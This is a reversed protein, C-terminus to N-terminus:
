FLHLMPLSLTHNSVLYRPARAPHNEKELWDGIGTFKDDNLRKDVIKMAIETKFYPWQPKTKSPKLPDSAAAQGASMTRRYNDVTTRAVALYGGPFTEASFPVM